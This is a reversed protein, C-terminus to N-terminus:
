SGTESNGPKLNTDALIVRFDEIVEELILEMKEISRNLEDDPANGVILSKANEYEELIEGLHLMEVVPKIKHGARRLDELDRANMNATYDTRFESFSQISAESFEAVYKKENFLMKYILEPEVRETKKM